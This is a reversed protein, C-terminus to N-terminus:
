TCAFRADSGYHNRFCGAAYDGGNLSPPADWAGNFTDFELDDAITRQVADHGCLEGSWFEIAVYSNILGSEVDEPTWLFLQYRTATGKDTFYEGLVLNSTVLNSPTSEPTLQHDNGTKVIHM